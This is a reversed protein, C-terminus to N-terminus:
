KNVWNHVKEISAKADAASPAGSYSSVFDDYTGNPNNQLFKTYLIYVKYDNESPKNDWDKDVRINKTVKGNVTQMSGYSYPVGAVDTDSFNVFVNKAGTTSQATTFLANGVKELQAESVPTDKIVALYAVKNSKKDTTIAQYEPMAVDSQTTKPQPSSKGTDSGCGAVSITAIVACLLAAALKSKKM